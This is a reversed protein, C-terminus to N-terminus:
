ISPPYGFCQGIQIFMESFPGFHHSIAYILILLISLNFITM